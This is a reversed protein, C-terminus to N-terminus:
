SHAVAPVASLPPPSSIKNKIMFEVWKALPGALSDFSETDTLWHRVIELGRSVTIDTQKGEVALNMEGIKIRVLESTDADIAFAVTSGDNPRAYVEFCDREQVSRTSVYIAGDSLRYNRSDGSDPMKRYCRLVRQSPSIAAEVRQELKRNLARDHGTYREARGILQGDPSYVYMDLSLDSFRFIDGPLSKVPPVFVEYVLSGPIAVETFYPIRGEAVFSEVAGPKALESIRRLANDKTARPSGERPIM